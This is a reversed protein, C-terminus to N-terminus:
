GREGSRPRGSSGHRRAMKEQIAQSMADVKAGAAQAAQAASQATQNAQDATSQAQQAAAAAADASSQARSASSQAAQAASMAQDATEQAHRVSSTTACGGLALTGALIAAISCRSAISLM